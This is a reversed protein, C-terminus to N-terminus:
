EPRSDTDTPENTAEEEEDDEDDGLDADNSGTDVAAAVAPQALAPQSTGFPESQDALDPLGSIYKEVDKDTVTGAKLNRERVRVDFTWPNTKQTM